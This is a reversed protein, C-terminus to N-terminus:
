ILCHLVVTTMVVSRDRVSRDEGEVTWAFTGGNVDVGFLVERLEKIILMQHYGTSERESVLCELTYM